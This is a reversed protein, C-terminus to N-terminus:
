VPGDDAETDEGDLLELITNAENGLWAKARKALAARNAPNNEKLLVAAEEPNLLVKDTLREIADAQAKRVARRAIVAAISTALYTGSVQGRMWAYGRSQLAEVSITANHAQATGSSAPAKGRLRLDVNDLVDAYQKITALQEPKDRYLRDLVAAVNPKEIFRKMWDGRWQYKGGMSRNSNDVSTSEAKMKQWMAARAGETATPNDGVFDMIAAAAAEPDKAALVETIAKESQADGYQLYKGVPGRGKVTGDPTGLNAELEAEAAGAAVHRDSAQGAAAIEDRLDPYRDFVRGYGSLFADRKAPDGLADANELQALIEDKVAARTTAGHSSLDTEALLRDINSAQKSDPQVFQRAVASDPLNPRGERQALTQALPDNPRNFRENVDRSVARAGETRARVDAPVADSGLFGNIEDILRGIAEARNRDGSSSADRQQTVFTSRMDNLEQTSVGQGPELAEMLSRPIDATQNLDSIAQQRAMTLGGRAEDMAEVLPAPDVQAGTGEWAMNETERAAREANQVGGRVAAGREEGSMQPTLSDMYRELETQATSTQTAAAGLQRSREEDLASRFAGPQETPEVTRMAADVMDANQSRRQAFAGAGSPSSQRGYELSAIGPNATRDALTEQYGPIVDSPRTGTPQQIADVMAQTDVPGASEDMGSAKIVRDAVADKVTQDIYNPNQFIAGGINGLSRALVDGLAYLSTGGVAGFLDAWQGAATDRDFMTNMVGAGTGAATTAAMEKGVFKGPNVAAPELVHRDFWSRSARIADLGKDAAKAVVGGVPILASGIEEGVRGSVTEAVNRPAPTHAKDLRFVEELEEGSPLMGFREFGPGIQAMLDGVTGPLGAFNTIGRSVGTTGHYGVGIATDAVGNGTTPLSPRQPEVASVMDDIMSPRAKADEAGQAGAPLALFNRPDDSANVDFAPAASGEAEARRRRAKARLLLEPNAAM